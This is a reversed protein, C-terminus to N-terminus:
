KTMVDKVMDLVKQILFLSGYSLAGGLITKIIGEFDHNTVNTLIQKVTIIAIVWYGLNILVNFIMRGIENISEM